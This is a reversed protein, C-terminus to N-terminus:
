FRRERKGCNSRKAAIKTKMAETRSLLGLNRFESSAKSVCYVYEWHNAWSVRGLPMDCPCIQPISCGVPNVISDEPTDLCSPFENDDVVGDADLDINPTVQTLTINYQGTNIINDQIISSGVM